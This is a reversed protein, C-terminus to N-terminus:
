YSPPTVAYTLIYAGACEQIKVDVDLNKRFGTVPVSHTLSHPAVYHISPRHVSPRSESDAMYTALRPINGLPSPPPINSSQFHSPRRIQRKAKTEQKIQHKTSPTKHKTKTSTHLTPSPPSPQHHHTPHKSFLLPPIALSPM